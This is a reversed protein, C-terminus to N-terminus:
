EDYIMKPRIELTIEKNDREIDNVVTLNFELESSCTSAEV